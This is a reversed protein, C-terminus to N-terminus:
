YDLEPTELEREEPTSEPFAAGAPLIFFEAEPWSRYGGYVIDVRGAIREGDQEFESVASDIHNTLQAIDYRQDDAYFIIVGQIGPRLSLYGGFEKSFWYFPDEEGADVEDLDEFFEDADDGL